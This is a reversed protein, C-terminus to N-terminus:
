SGKKLRKVVGQMIQASAQEAAANLDVGDSAASAAWLVAGTEVAVLRVSLAVHAPQTEVEPVVYNTQTYNYGTIVQQVTHVTTGGSHQTTSVTGYIPDSQEQPKDVMVTQERPATYDGLSGFALADVGLIKGIRKITAPDIAGSAQFSQESVLRTHSAGLIEGCM